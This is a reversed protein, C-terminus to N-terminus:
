VLRRFGEEITVGSLSLVGHRLGLGRVLPDLACVDIEQPLCHAPALRRKLRDRGRQMAEFAVGLEAIEVVKVDLLGLREFGTKFSDFARVSSFNLAAVIVDVKPVSFANKRHSAPCGPYLDRISAESASYKLGGALWNRTAVALLSCRIGVTSCIRWTSAVMGASVSM